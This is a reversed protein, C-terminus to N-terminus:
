FWYKKICEKCEAVYKKGEESPPATIEEAIKEGLLTTIVTHTGECLNDLNYAGEYYVATKAIALLQATMYSYTNITVNYEGLPDGQAADFGCSILILEPQFRKAIPIVLEEFAHKYESEGMMESGGWAINVNFGEGKGNGVRDAKGKELNPYTNYRHLSLYLIEAEEYFADQTGNGHHVDWDVILIKKVGKSQAYRAAIAVNNFFCFGAAKCSDAHHGPPRILAFGTDVTGNLVAETLQLTSGAALLAAEYTSENFYTTHTENIFMDPINTQNVVKDFDAFFHNDGKKM